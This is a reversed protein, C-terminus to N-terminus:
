TRARRRCRSGRPARPGPRSASRTSATRRETGTRTPSASAPFRVGAPNAMAPEVAPAEAAVLLAPNPSFIPGARLHVAHLGHGRHSRRVRRPRDAIGEAVEVQTQEAQAEHRVQAAVDGAALRAAQMRDRPEAHLRPRGPRLGRRSTTTHRRLLLGPVPRGRHVPEPRRLRGQAPGASLRWSHRVDRRFLGRSRPSPLHQREDGGDEGWGYARSRAQDHTFYNWASGDTSYDERVTGWQRESLYPGWQKWPIHQERAEILRRTEPGDHM